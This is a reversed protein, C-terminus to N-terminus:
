RAFIRLFGNDMRAAYAIPPQLDRAQQKTLRTVQGHPYVLDIQVAAEVARYYSNSGTDFLDLCEPECQPCSGEIVETGCVDCCGEGYQSAHEYELRDQEDYDRM